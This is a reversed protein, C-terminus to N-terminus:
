NQGNSGGPRHNLVLYAIGVLTAAVLAVSFLAEAPVDGVFVEVLATGTTSAPVFLLVIGIGLVAIAIRQRSWSDPIGNM